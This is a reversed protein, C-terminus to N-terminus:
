SFHTLMEPLILGALAVPLVSFDLRAGCVVERVLSDALIVVDVIQEHVVVRLRTSQKTLGLRTEENATKQHPVCYRARDKQQRRKQAVLAAVEARSAVIASPPRAM